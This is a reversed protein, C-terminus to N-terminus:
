IEFIELLSTCGLKADGSKRMQFVQIAFVGAVDDGIFKDIAEIIGTKGLYGTKSDARPDKGKFVIKWVDHGRGIPIANDRNIIV